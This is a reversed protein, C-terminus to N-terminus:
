VQRRRRVVVALLLAVWVARSGPNGSSGPTRCGCGDDADGVMGGDTRGGVGGDQGPVCMPIDINECGTGEANCRDQTCPNGDNCVADAICGGCASDTADILMDCDNDIGDDCVETGGPFTLRNTDDCDMGFRDEAMDLCDGDANDDIGMPCYGDGDRDLLHFCGSDLLDVDSDCDDDRRNGCIEAAGPNREPDAEDCDSGAINEGEGLCDGNGDLDRGIPCWGDGDADVDRVCYPDDMDVLGNQDNDKRDFCNEPAGPYITSDNPSADAPGEQEGADSCDGDRNLDEGVECWHDGDFDLHTASCVPDYADTSGDCDNDFGDICIETATPNVSANADDCDSGNGGEGPGTCNGDRNMDFGEFCYRDGDMDLFGVCDDDALSVIGDCDEDRTSTCVEPAGPNVLRDMEDCDGVGTEEGADACSGDGDMDQGVPCYGDGDADFFGECEDDEFNPFGDCDNDVADTCVETQDPNQNPDSDNCDFGEDLEGPDLCDGDNNLDRGIPCFGDGDADEENNCMPDVRDIPGDCNNDLGDMCNERAGPFVTIRTDDCDVDGTMEAASSICNGDGNLDRGMPCYGDGDRDAIQECAPDNLTSLGNCDNDLTNSCVEMAGSNISRNMDDCDLEGNNEGPSLCTGNRDLDQGQWCFGDGDADRMGPNDTNFGPRTVQNPNGPAPLGFQWAGSPDQLEQGNTFGDGDADMMALAPTWMLGAARFQMGFPNLCPRMGGTTECGTGGDANNHCTICPRTDGNANQATARNPVQAAYTELASAESVVAGLMTLVLLLCSVARAATTRVEVVRSM